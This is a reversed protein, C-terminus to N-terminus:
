QAEKSEPLKTFNRSQWGEIIKISEDIKDLHAQPSGQQRCRWRYDGLVELLISDQARFVFVPEHEGINGKELTVKGYKNDIAM